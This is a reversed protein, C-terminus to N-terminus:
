PPVYGVENCITEVSATRGTAKRWRHQDFTRTEYVLIAHASVRFEAWEGDDGEAPDPADKLSSRAPDHQVWMLRVREALETVRNLGDDLSAMPEYRAIIPNWVEFSVDAPPDRDDHRTIKLTPRSV